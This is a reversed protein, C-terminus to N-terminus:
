EVAWAPGGCSRCAVAGAIEDNMFGLDLCDPCTHGMVPAGHDQCVGFGVEVGYIPCGCERCEHPTTWGRSTALITPAIVRKNYFRRWMKAVSM